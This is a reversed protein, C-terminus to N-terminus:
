GLDHKSEVLSGQAAGCRRFPFHRTIPWSGPVLGVLNVRAIGNATTDAPMCLRTALSPACAWSPHVRQPATAAIPLCQAWEEGPRAWDRLAPSATELKTATPQKMERLCRGPLAAMIPRSPLRSRRRMCAWCSENKAQGGIAGEQKLRGPM